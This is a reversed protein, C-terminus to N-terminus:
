YQSVDNDRIFARWTEVDDRATKALEEPTSPDVVLMLKEFQALVEPNKLALHIQRALRAATEKPMTRPGLVAQWVPVSVSPWGAEAMTPVDPIAASRQPLLVGLMRLKGSSVHPLALFIPTFYVQVRGALLDPIAQAGGKYPVRTMTIKAATTLQSAAMYESLTAAAYSLKDPNARAYAIFEALTAAPVDPHVFMGFPFQGVRAVPTFDSLAEFPPNRQLLPIAAMSGVGWLLTAGDGPANIVAKAALAGNAGPINDIVVTQGLSASLAKGLVRAASDSAGGAAFPVILRVPSTQACVQGATVAAVAAAGLQLFHRRSLHGM